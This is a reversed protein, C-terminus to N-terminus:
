IMPNVSLKKLIVLARILLVEKVVASNMVSM